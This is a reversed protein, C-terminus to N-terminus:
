ADDMVEPYDFRYRCGEREILITETELTASDRTIVGLFITEDPQGDAFVERFDEAPVHWHQMWVEASIINLEPYTHDLREFLAEQYISDGQLAGFIIDKGVLYEYDMTMHNYLSAISIDQVVGNETFGLVQLSSITPCVEEYTSSFMPMRSLPWIENMVNYALTHSGFIAVISIVVLRLRRLLAQDQQTM